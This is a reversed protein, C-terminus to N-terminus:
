NNQYSSHSVTAVYGSDIADRIRREFDQVFIYAYTSNYDHSSQEGNSFYKYLYANSPRTPFELGNHYQISPYYGTPIAHDYDYHEIEGFGNSLRELYYRALLQQYVYYYQEGHRENHFYTDEKSMWFPYYINFYYYYANIGVDETFYSLSQEPHTNVYWSSYNAFVTYGKFDGTQPKQMGTFIQKYHQAKEIVEHNFFYYPYVEYIPPLVIGHTDQRHVIAVSLAYVYIGENVHQRAWVATKYFTDYDKAYYFLKYLAIAEKLHPYYFVSFVQGRPLM